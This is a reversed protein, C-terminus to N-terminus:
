KEVRLRHLFEHVMSYTVSRDQFHSFAKQKEEDNAQLHQLMNTLHLQMHGSQIGGTVLAKIASFHNALGASAAIEMLEQANPNNLLQLSAGALPHLSTLGGTVGVSMPLELSLDFIGNEVIVESLSSYKGNRAAWAHGASEVARFDNGTALIVADIGNFIGKNHTVARSVNHSAIKVALEFRRVFDSGTMRYKVQELDDIGCRVSCKVLCDPTYNSLIAMIIEPAPSLGKQEAKSIMYASMAELCSNIFNAGMADKTDFRVQLQFYGPIKEDPKVLEIDLIGGGRAKMSKEIPAASELLGSRIDSIFNKLVEYDGHWLFHIHGPKIMKSVSASFGGHFWWFKAAASAAAVVSSEETVMPIVYGTGNILFNPALSYPLFYNTVANETFGDVQEQGKTQWHSFMLRAFEVPRAAYAASVRIKDERSLKSFGEIIKNKHTM